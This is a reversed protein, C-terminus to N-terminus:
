NNLLHQKAAAEAMARPYGQSLLDNVTKSYLAITQKIIERPEITPAPEQVDTDVTLNYGATAKCCNRTKSILGNRVSLPENYLLCYPVGDVKQCFRCTSKVRRDFDMKDDNCFNWRPVNYNITVKVNAVM